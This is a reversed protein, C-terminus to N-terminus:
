ERVESTEGADDGVVRLVDILDPLATAWTTADERRLVWESLGLVAGGDSDTDGLAAALKADRAIAYRAEIVGTTPEVLMGRLRYLASRSLGLGRLARSKELLAKFRGLGYPRQSLQVDGRISGLDLQRKAAEIAEVGGSLATGGLLFRFDVASRDDGQIGEKALRVLRHAYDFCFGAPLSRTVVVGFGAGLARVKALVVADRAETFHGCLAASTFEGEIRDALSSVLSFVDRRESGVKWWAPAVLMVDDGGAIVVQSNESPLGLGELVKPTLEFAGKLASSLAHYQAVMRASSAVQAKEGKTLFEGVGGLRHQLPPM